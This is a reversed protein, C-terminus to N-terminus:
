NHMTSMVQQFNAKISQEQPTIATLPRTELFDQSYHYFLGTNEYLKYATDQIWRVPSTPYGPKDPDFHCFVWERTIISPNKLITSFDKGDTIGYAAPISTGALDALTPMIDTGDLLADSVSPFIHGPWWICMPVHTGYETTSEKGGTVSSGQFGSTIRSDTGNDGMFIIITNNALGASQVKDMVQGIKKDMYRIMSPFYKTNSKFLLPNWSAFDADDPTPSFPYHALCVPYYIFFPNSKNNDIFHFMSDTFIDEGYKGATASGQLFLNNTYLVPSKYRSDKLDAGEEIDDDQEQTYPNWVVFNNFGLGHIATNGGDLQWKGSIFTKYGAGALLDAITKNVTDMIGWGNYNRFNYKGTLLMFRSPSCLPSIHFRTFRMGEKAMRDINPTAYSQGGNVTPIEYGIDDGLILIINPKDKASEIPPIIVQDVGKKCATFFFGVGLLFLCYSAFFTKYFSLASLM